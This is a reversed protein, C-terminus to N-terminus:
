GSLKAKVWYKDSMCKPCKKFLIREQNVKLIYCIIQQYSTKKELIGKGVLVFLDEFNKLLLRTLLQVTSVAQVGLSVSDENNTGPRNPQPLM